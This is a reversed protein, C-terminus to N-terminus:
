RFLLTGDDLRDKLFVKKDHQYNQPNIWPEHDGQKPLRDLARDIYGPSFDTIWPQPSMSLDEPRLTPTCQAFDNKDMYNVLRCFYEATLDARLTWSANIYGFTSVLNPVGSFMIGRYSYTTSIDVPQDDVFFIVGGLVLLDLGTATVIIDADLETGSQLKIGNETFSAIKDTVVSASGSRIAEFLDGDPM